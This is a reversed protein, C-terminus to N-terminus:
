AAASRLPLPLPLPLLLLLLLLLLLCCPLVARELQDRLPAGRERETELEERLKALAAKHEAITM